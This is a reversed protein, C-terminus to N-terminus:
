RLPPLNSLILEAMPLSEKCPDPRRTQSFSGSVVITHLDAAAVTFSCDRDPVSNSRIAPHGAIEFQRYNPQDHHVRYLSPLKSARHDTSVSVVAHDSGDAYDWACGEAYGEADPRATAPDLGLTRLQATTLLDCAAIGRADLPERVKLSLPVDPPWEGNPGTDSEWTNVEALTPEGPPPAVTPGPIACATLAVALFAAAPTLAKM